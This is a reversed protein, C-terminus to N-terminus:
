EDGIKETKYIFRVSEGRTGVNDKFSKYNKAADSVATMRDKLEKLEGDFADVLAEIGEENFKELGESLQMAGDALQEVGDILASSGTQLTGIGVYLTDAGDSLQGAGSALQGAGNELQGAGSELRGAGDALRGAGGVLQGAGDVLQGAGENASAVGATYTLLGQYFQNYSDLQAKLASLSAAGTKAAAVAAEVQKTVEASQMNQGILEQLKAETTESIVTEQSKMAAEVMGPIQAVLAQTDADASISGNAIGDYTAQDLGAQGLVTNWVQQRVAAEVGTRVTGTQERVKAEVQQRAIGMARERVANENLSGLAGDLVQGYNDRTLAPLSLGSAQLQSNAAALLSDFVQGAGGNLSDNGAALQDLGGKLALAGDSLSETGAKLTEAGDKLTGAGSKLEGAGSQLDNAGSELTGAGTALAEAGSHLKGIGDTLEGSKDLLESLGDYLASSGDMLQDMADTLEEMSEDLEDFAETQDLEMDAFVETTAFTMTTELEFDTVDATVEVYGPLELKEQDLNLSEQLGPMAFGAVITRDGDNLVKGNSVEVNTFRENDLIMGTVMVFPVYVRKKEGNIEVDEYQRNTYDFRMTVKGSKGAMDEAAVPRGDLKFSVAMDVPLEKQLDEQTYSDEGGADKMLDSVIIKQPTGDAGALVYVTEEVSGGEKTGVSGTDKAGADATEAEIVQPGSGEGKRMGAAYAGAGTMGFVLSGGLIWAVLQKARGNLYRVNLHEVSKNKKNKYEVIHRM